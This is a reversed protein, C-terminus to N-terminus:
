VNLERIPQIAKLFTLGCMGNAYARSRFVMPITQRKGKAFFRMINEEMKTQVGHRLHVTGVTKTTSLNSQIFNIIKSKSYWFIIDHKELFNRKGKGGTDLALCNKM